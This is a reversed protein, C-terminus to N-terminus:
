LPEVSIVASLPNFGAFMWLDVHKKRMLALGAGRKIELTALYKFEHRKKPLSFINKAKDKCTYLSCSAFRCSDVSSSSRGLAAYSKFDDTTPTEDVIARYAIGVDGDQAEKPPCEPPLDELFQM